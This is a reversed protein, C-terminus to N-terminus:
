GGCVALASKGHVSPTETKSPSVALFDDKGLTHVKWRWGESCHSGPFDSEQLASAAGRGGVMCGEPISLAPAWTGKVRLCTHQVAERGQRSEM